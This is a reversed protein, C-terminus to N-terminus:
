HSGASRGFLLYSAGASTRGGPDVGYGGILLDGVGDRNVDGAGSVSWGTVDHPMAGEIIFGASGNGGAVPSLSQLQFVPPFGTTRGFVVYSEGAGSQGNPDAGYAGILLDGIGDGNVDGADSVSNGSLDGAYRGAFIVGESGDGGQAPQM